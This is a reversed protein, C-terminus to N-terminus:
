SWCKWCCIGVKVAEPMCLLVCRIPEPAERVNLLCLGGEVAELICLLVCRMVDPVEPVVLVELLYIGVKVAKLVALVVELVDGCLADGVTGVAYPGSNEVAELIRRVGELLELVCLVGEPMELM